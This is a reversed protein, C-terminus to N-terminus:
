STCVVQNSSSCTSILDLYLKVNIWQQPEARQDQRGVLWARFEQAIAVLSVTNEGDIVCQLVM